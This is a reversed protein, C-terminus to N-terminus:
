AARRTVYAAVQEETVLGVPAGRDMVLAVAGPANRLRELVVELSTSPSVVVVDRLTTRGVPTDPAGRELSGAIEDRSVVGIPIGNELVPVTAVRGGCLLRAVDELPQEPGVAQLRPLIVASIPIGEWDTTGAARKM